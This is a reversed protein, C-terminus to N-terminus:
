VEGAWVQQRLGAPVLNVLDDPDRGVLAHGVAGGIADPPWLLPEELPRGYRWQLAAPILGDGRAQLLVRDDDRDRHRQRSEIVVEKVGREALDGALAALCRQRGAVERRARALFARAQFGDMGADAHLETLLELHRRRLGPRDDRWHLRKVGAPLLERLRRQIALIQSGDVVVAVMVYLNLSGDGTKLRSEDIYAHRSPDM